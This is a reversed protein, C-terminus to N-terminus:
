PVWSAKVREVKVAKDPEFRPAIECRSLRAGQSRGGSPGHFKGAYTLQVFDRQASQSATGCCIIPDLGIRGKLWTSKALVIFAM